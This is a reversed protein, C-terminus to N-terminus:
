SLVAAQLLVKGASGGDAGCPTTAGGGGAPGGANVAVAQLQINHAGTTAAPQSFRVTLMHAAPPTVPPVVLTAVGTVQCYTAAKGSPTSYNYTAKVAGNSDALTAVLTAPSACTGIYVLVSTAVTVAPVDVSVEFTGVGGHGGAYIATPTQRRPM